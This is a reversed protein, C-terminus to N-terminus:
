AMSASKVNNARQSPFGGTLLPKRDCLALSTSKTTKKTTLRYLSNFIKVELFLKKWKNYSEILFIFIQTKTYQFQNNQWKKLQFTKDSFLPCPMLVCLGLVSHGGNELHWKWICNRSYFHEFKSQYKVSNQEKHGLQSYTLMPESLPKARLLCCAMMQVLSSTTRWHM